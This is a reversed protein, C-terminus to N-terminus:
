GKGEGLVPIGASGPVGAQAFAAPTGVHRRLRPPAGWKRSVVSRGLDDDEASTSELPFTPIAEGVGISRSRFPPYKKARNQLTKYSNSSPM